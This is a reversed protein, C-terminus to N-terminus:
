PETPQPWDGLRRPTGAGKAADLAIVSGKGRADFRVTARFTYDLFDSERRGDNKYASGSITFCLRNPEPWSPAACWSKTSQFPAIRKQIRAREPRLNPIQLPIPRGDSLDFAVVSAFQHFGSHLAVRQSTPSWAITYHPIGAGSPTKRQALAIHHFVGDKSLDDSIPRKQSLDFFVIRDRGSETGAHQVALAYQRNPAISDAIIEFDDAAAFFPFALSAVLLPFPNM